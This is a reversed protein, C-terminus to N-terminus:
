SSGNPCDYLLYLMGPIALIDRALRYLNPFKDRNTYWWQLPDVTDFPEPNKTLRFYEDLEAASDTPRRNKTYRATLSIKQPSGNPVTPDPIPDSPTTGTSAYNMIYHARLRVMSKELDAHLEVDHRYDELLGEYSIRPDLVPLNTFLHGLSSSSSYARSAWMCYDSQDFLHFYDSLKKHANLLGQKLNVDVTEPLRSIISRIEAQLSRFVAHTQSLMPKKTTSM